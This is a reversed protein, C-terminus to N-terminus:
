NNSEDVVFGDDQTEKNNIKPLYRKRIIWVGDNSVNGCVIRRYFFKKATGTLKVDFEIMINVGKITLVRLNIYAQVVQKQLGQLCTVGLAIKIIISFNIQEIKM